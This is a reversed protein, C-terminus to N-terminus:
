VGNAQSGSSKLVEVLAEWDGDHVLDLVTEYLPQEDVNTCFLISHITGVVVLTVDYGHLSYTNTSNDM